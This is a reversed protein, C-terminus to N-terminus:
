ASPVASPIGTDNVNSLPEVIEKMAVRIASACLRGMKIFYGGNLYFRCIICYCRDSTYSRANRDGNVSM